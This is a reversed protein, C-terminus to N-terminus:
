LVEARDRAQALDATRAAVRHELEENLVNVQDRTERLQRTYSAISIAVCGVVVVIVVAGISTSGM